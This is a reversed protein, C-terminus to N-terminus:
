GPRLAGPAGRKDGREKGVPGVAVWSSLGWNQRLVSWTSTELGADTDMEKCIGIPLDKKNIKYHLTICYLTCCLVTGHLTHHLVVVFLSKYYNNNSGVYMCKTHRKNKCHEVGITISKTGSPIHYRYMYMYIISTDIWIFVYM